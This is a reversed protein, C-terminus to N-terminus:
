HRASGEPEETSCLRSVLDAVQDAHDGTLVTAVNPQAADDLVLHELIYDRVVEPPAPGNTFNYELVLVGRFRPADSM